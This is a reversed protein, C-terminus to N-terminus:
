ASRILVIINKQQSMVAAEIDEKVGVIKTSSPQVEARAWAIVTGMQSVPM